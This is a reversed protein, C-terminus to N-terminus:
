CCTTLIQMYICGCIMVFLSPCAPGMLMYLDLGSLRALHTPASAPQWGGGPPCLPRIETFVGMVLLLLLWLSLTEKWILFCFLVCGCVNFFFFAVFFHSLNELRVESGLLRVGEECGEAAPAPCTQTDGRPDLWLLRPGPLMFTPLPCKPSGPSGDARNGSISHVQLLRRM